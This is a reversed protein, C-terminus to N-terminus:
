PLNQQAICFHGHAWCFEAKQFKEHAVGSARVTTGLQQIMDPPGISVEFLTRDIHMDAAQAFCKLGTRGAVVHLRHAAM